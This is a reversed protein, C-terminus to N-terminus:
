ERKQRFQRQYRGPSQGMLRGFARIFNNYNRFGVTEASRQVTEGARLLAAARLLRLRLLYQGVTFGTEEKFRRCLHYKTVYCHEALVDLSLDESLHQNIRDIACRVPVSLDEPPVPCVAPQNLLRGVLVLLSLFACNRLIDDGPSAPEALCQEMLSCAQRFSAEDLQICANGQFMRLFDTQETSAERLTEHPIHLVYREYAGTQAVSHHLVQDQMLILTGRHLAHRNDKVFFSGGDSLSLLLELQDHLHSQQMSWRDDHNRRLTFEM